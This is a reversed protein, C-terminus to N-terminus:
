RESSTSEVDEVPDEDGAAEHSSTSTLRRKSPTVPSATVPHFTTPGDEGHKVFLVHKIESSWNTGSRRPISVAGNKQVKLRTSAGKVGEVLVDVEDLKTEAGYLAKIITKKTTSGKETVMSDCVTVNGPLDAMLADLSPRMHPSSLYPLEEKKEEKKEEQVPHFTIPGDEGHKVFLV